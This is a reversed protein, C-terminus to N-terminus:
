VNSEFEGWGVWGVEGWTKEIDECMPSPGVEGRGVGLWRMGGLSKLTNM